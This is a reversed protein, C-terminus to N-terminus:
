APSYNGAPLVVSFTSGKGPESKIALTGNSKQLFERVLMIGIGTGKEKATGQSSTFNLKEKQLADLLDKKIGTGEDRITISVTNGTITSDLFINGGTHSFKLANSILNRFVPKLHSKVAYVTVMEDINNQIAIGKEQLSYQFLPLIEQLFLNIKIPEGQEMMGGAQIKSWQLVDEMSSSLVQLQAQLKFSIDYFQKQTLINDNLLMLTSSLNRVPTNFDHSLISLMREKAKNGAKLQENIESLNKRYSLQRKKFYELICVFAILICATIVCQRSIPIPNVIAPRAQYYVIAILLASQFVLLLIRLKEKDIVMINFAMLIFIAYQMSNHFLFANLFFYLSYLSILIAITTHYYKLRRIALIPIAFALLVINSILLLWNHQVVNIIAIISTVLISTFSAANLVKVQRRMEDTLEEKVGNNVIAHIM